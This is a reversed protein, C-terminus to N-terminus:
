AADVPRSRHGHHHRHANLLASLVSRTTVIMIALYDKNVSVKDLERRQHIKM